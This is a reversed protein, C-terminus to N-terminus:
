EKNRQLLIQRGYEYAKKSEIRVDLSTTGFEGNWSKTSKDILTVFDPFLAKLRYAVQTSLEINRYISCGGASNAGKARGYGYKYSTLTPIGNTLFHLYIYFDEKIPLDSFKPHGPLANFLKRNIGWFSCIRSNLKTNEKIKDNGSRRSIGVMGYRDTMLQVNIWKFMRYRYEMIHDVTFHKDIIEKLPYETVTGTDSRARIHFKLTDDVFTIYDVRALHDICYQRVQGINDAEIPVVAHIKNGWLRLLESEEGPHCVVTIYQLVSPPLLKLTVQDHVRGRTPLFIDNNNLSM